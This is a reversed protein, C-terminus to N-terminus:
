LSTREMPANISCAYGAPSIAEADTSHRRQDGATQSGWIRLKVEVVEVVNNRGDDDMESVDMCDPDNAGPGPRGRLEGCTLVGLNNLWKTLYVHM